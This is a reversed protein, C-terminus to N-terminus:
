KLLKLCKAVAEGFKKVNKAEKVLHKAHWIYAEKGTKGIKSNVKKEFDKRDMEAGYAAMGPFFVEMAKGKFCQDRIEPFEVLYTDWNKCGTTYGRANADKSFIKFFNEETPQQGYKVIDVLLDDIKKKTKTLMPALIKRVNAVAKKRQAVLEKATNGEFDAMTAWYTRAAKAVTTAGEAASKPIMKAKKYVSAGNKALTEVEKGKKICPAIYQKCLKPLEALKTDIAGPLEHTRFTKWDLKNHLTELAKLADSIGTKKTKALSPKKKSWWKTTLEQPYDIAPM